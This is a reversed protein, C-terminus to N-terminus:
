RVTVTGLAVPESSRTIRGAGPGELAETQYVALHIVYDGSAVTGPLQVGVRLQLGHATEVLLRDQEWVPSGGAAPVLRVSGKLPGTGGTRPGEILLRAESGPRVEVDTALRAVRLDLLDRGVAQEALPARGGDTLYLRIVANSFRRVSAPFANAELWRSVHGEPDQYDIGSEMVWIRPHSRALASLGAEAEARTLVRSSVGSAAAAFIDAATDGRPQILNRGHPMGKAYRDYWVSQAPGNLVVADDPRVQERLAQVAIVYDDNWRHTLNPLIAPALGLALLVALPPLAVRPLRSGALAVLTAAAPMAVALYRPAYFVGLLTLLPVVLTPVVYAAAATSWFAPHFRRRQWVVLLLVAAMFVAAPREPGFPWVAAGLSAALLEALRGPEPLNPRVRLVLTDRLGPSAALWVGVLAVGTLAASFVLRRGARQAGLLLAPAVIAFALFYHTAITLVVVAGALVPGRRDSPHRSTWAAALLLLAALLTLLAYMRTFRGYFVDLPALALAWAALVAARPGAAIGAAAAVIPVALTSPVVASMRLAAESDGAAGMWWHLLLYFLPPHEQLASLCYRVIDVPPLTALAASFAEDWELGGEDAMGWVRFFFAAVTAALVLLRTM